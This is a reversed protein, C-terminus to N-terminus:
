TTSRSITTSGSAFWRVRVIVSQLTVWPAWVTDMCPTMVMARSDPPGSVTVTSTVPPPKRRILPAQLHEVANEGIADHQHVHREDREHHQAPEERPPPAPHHQRVDRARQPPDGDLVAAPDTREGRELVRQASAGAEFPIAASEDLVIHNRSEIRRPEGSGRLRHQAREHQQHIKHRVPHQHSAFSECSTYPRLM